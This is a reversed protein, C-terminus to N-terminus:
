LAKGTCEIWLSREQVAGNKITKMGSGQYDGSLLQTVKPLGLFKDQSNLSILGIFYIGIVSHPM